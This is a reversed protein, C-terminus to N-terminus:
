AAAMRASARLLLVPCEKDAFERIITFAAGSNKLDSQFQSSSYPPHLEVVLAGVRSIWSGCDKFLESEAGEIDCKLLDIFQDKFHADLLDNMTLVDTTADHVSVGDVMRFAWEDTGGLKVKRRYSGVCAQVGWM